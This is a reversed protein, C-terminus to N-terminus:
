GLVRLAGSPTETFAVNAEPPRIAYWDFFTLTVPYRVYDKDGWALPVDGVMIPYAERLVIRTTPEGSDDFAVVTVDVAYDRKYSVEFPRQNPLPVQSTNAQMGSVAPSFPITVAIWSRFFDHIRDRADARFLFPCDAFAPAFPKKETVGYGYRRVDNTLLGVGPLTAREAYFELARGTDMYNGGAATLANCVPVQVVYKNTRQLGARALEALINGVNFM